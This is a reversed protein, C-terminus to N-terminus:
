VCIFIIAWNKNWFLNGLVSIPPTEPLKMNKPVRVSRSSQGAVLTKTGLRIIFQHAMNLQYGHYTQEKGFPFLLLSYQPSYLHSFFQSFHLFSMTHDTHITYSFILCFQFCFFIHLSRLSLLLIFFVFINWHHIYTLRQM